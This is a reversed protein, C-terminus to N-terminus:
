PKLLHYTTDLFYINQNPNVEHILKLLLAATTGFSSTYIIKNIDFDQYLEVIRERPTLAKYKKNLEELTM